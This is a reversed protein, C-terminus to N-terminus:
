YHLVNLVGKNGTVAALTITVAAGKAGIFIPDGELPGAGGRTVFLKLTDTGDTITLEGAGDDDYSFDIRKIIHHEGEVAALTVIAATNDVDPDHSNFEYGRETSSPYTAM